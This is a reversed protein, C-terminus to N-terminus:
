CFKVVAVIDEEEFSTLALIKIAPHGLWWVTRSYLHV